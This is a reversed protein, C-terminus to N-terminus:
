NWTDIIKQCSVYRHASVFKRDRRTNEGDTMIYIKWVDALVILGFTFLRNDGDEGLMQQIRQEDLHERVYSKTKINATHSVLMGALMQTKARKMSRGLAKHESVLFPYM